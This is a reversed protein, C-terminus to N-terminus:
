EGNGKKKKRDRENKKPHLIYTAIGNRGQYQVCM